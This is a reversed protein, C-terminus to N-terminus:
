PARSRRPSGRAADDRDLREAREDLEDRALVAQQVDRPHGRPADLLTSSTSLTPSSTSTADEVDVVAALDRQVADVLELGAALAARRAFTAAPVAAATRPTSTTTAVGAVPRAPVVLAAAPVVAPRAPAM